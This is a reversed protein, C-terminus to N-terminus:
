EIGDFGGEASLSISDALGGRDVAGRIFKIRRRTPHM